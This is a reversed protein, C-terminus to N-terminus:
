KQVNKVWHVTKKKIIEDTEVENGLPDRSQRYVKFEFPKKAKIDPHYNPFVGTDVKAAHTKMFVKFHDMYGTTNNYYSQKAIKRISHALAKIENDTLDTLSRHPNLKADYLIESVMYNGVGSVIADQDMLIKYLNKDKRSTKIFHNIIKVLDSDNM